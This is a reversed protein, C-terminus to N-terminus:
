DFIQPRLRIECLGPVRVNFIPEFIFKMRHHHRALNVLGRRLLHNGCVPDRRVLLYEVGVLRQRALTGLPTDRSAVVWGAGANRVGDWHRPGATILEARLRLGVGLGSALKEHRSGVGSGEGFFDM